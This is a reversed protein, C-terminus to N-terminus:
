IVDIGIRFGTLHPLCMCLLDILKTILAFHPAEKQEKHVCIQWKGDASLYM